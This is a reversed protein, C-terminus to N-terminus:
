NRSIGGEIRREGGPSLYHGTGLVKRLIRATGLLTIKQTLSIGIKVVLKGLWKNLKKRVRGLSGVIIPLM